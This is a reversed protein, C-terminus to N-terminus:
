RRHTIHLLPAGAPLIYKAAIIPQGAVSVTQTLLTAPTEPPRAVARGRESGLTTARLTSRSAIPLLPAASLFAALMTSANQQAPRANELAAALAAAADAGPSDTAWEHAFCAATGDAEIVTEWFHARAPPTLHLWYGSFDTPEEFEAIVRRCHITGAGLLDEMARLRELGPGPPYQNVTSGAGQRRTIVGDEQLLILVERLAPRSVNFQTALTPEPPLKSEPPYTGDRISAVIREYLQVRPSERRAGHETM